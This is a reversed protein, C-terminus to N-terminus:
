GTKKRSRDDFQALALILKHSFLFCIYLFVLGFNWWAIGKRELHLVLQRRTVCLLHVFVCTRKLNIRVLALALTEKNARQRAEMIGLSLSVGRKEGGEKRGRRGEKGEVGM